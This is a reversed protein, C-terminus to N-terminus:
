SFNGSNFSLFTKIKSGISAVPPDREKAISLCKIHSYTCGINGKEHKIADVREATIDMKKFEELVRKFRDTRHKLNIFLTHKFLDM